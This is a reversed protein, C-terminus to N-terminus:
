QPKLKLPLGAVMLYVEDASAALSQNARGLCDRYIRGMRNAPVLGLGVENSVLISSAEIERLSTILEEIEAMVDQQITEESVTDFNAEGYQSFVNNVLLTICDVVVVHSEKAVESIRRGVQGPAELTV